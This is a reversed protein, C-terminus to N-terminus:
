DIRQLLSLQSSRRDRLWEVKVRSPGSSRGRHDVLEIKMPGEAVEMLRSRGQLQHSHHEDPIFLMMFKRSAEMDITSVISVISVISAILSGRLQWFSQRCSCIVPPGRTAVVGM